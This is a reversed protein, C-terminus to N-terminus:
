GFQGTVMVSFCIHFRLVYLMKQWYFKIREDDNNNYKFYFIFHLAIARLEIQKIKYNIKSYSSARARICM